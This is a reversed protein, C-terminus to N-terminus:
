WWWGDSVYLWAEVGWRKSLHLRTVLRALTLTCRSKAVATARKLGRTSNPLAINLVHNAKGQAELPQKAGKSINASSEDADCSRCWVWKRAGSAVSPWECVLARRTQRPALDDWAGLRLLVWNHHTRNRAPCPQVEPHPICPNTLTERM